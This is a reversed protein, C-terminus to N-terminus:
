ARSAPISGVSFGGSLALTGVPTLAGDAGVTVEALAGDTRSLAYLVTRGGIELVLLDTLGLDAGSLVQSVTLQPM